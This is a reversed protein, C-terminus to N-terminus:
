RHGVVQGPNGVVIAGDPVDRMVVARAGVVARRGVVVGPGVFADAAVWAEDHIVIDGAILPFDILRFDHSASCLHVGQSVIARAGLRIKAVSYACSRPGLCSGDGLVVNWPAWISASPYVHVGRGVTAGFLALVSCRWRHM